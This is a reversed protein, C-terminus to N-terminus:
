ERHLLEETRLRLALDGPTWHRRCIVPNSAISPDAVQHIAMCGCESRSIRYRKKGTRWISLQNAFRKGLLRWIEHCIYYSYEWNQWRREGNQDEFLCLPPKKAHCWYHERLNKRLLHLMWLTLVLHVIALDWSAQAVAGIMAVVCFYTIFAQLAACVQWGHNRWVESKSM